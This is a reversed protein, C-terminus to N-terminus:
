LELAKSIMQKAANVVTVNADFARGALMMDVMEDVINIDPYTVYGNKDADPNSPDYIVNKKMNPIEKVSGDVLPTDTLNKASRSMELSHEDRTYKMDLMSKKLTSAFQRAPDTAMTVVKRLYPSGKGDVNTVSMNAINSSVADMKERQATMGSAAIDISRYINSGIISNTSSEIRM